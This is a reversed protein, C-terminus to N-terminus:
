GHKRQPRISDQLMGALELQRELSYLCRQIWADLDAELQRQYYRALAAERPSDVLPLGLYLWSLGLMLGPHLMDQQVKVLTHSNAAMGKEMLRAQIATALLSSFWSRAHAPLRGRKQRRLLEALGAEAKRAALASDCAVAGVLGYTHRCLNELWVSYARALDPETAIADLWHVLPQPLAGPFVLQAIVEGGPQLFTVPVGDHATAGLAELGQTPYGICLVRSLRRLPFWQRSRGIARVRLAPGDRVIEQVRRADLILCRRNM